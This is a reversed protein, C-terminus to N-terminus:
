LSARNIKVVKIRKSNCSFRRKSLWGGVEVGWRMGWGADSLWASSVDKRLLALPKCHIHTTLQNREVQRLQMNESNKGRPKFSQFVFHWIPSDIIWIVCVYTRTFTAPLVPCPAFGRWWEDSKLCYMYVLFLKFKGASNYYRLYRYTIRPLIRIIKATIIKAFVTWFMIVIGPTIFM